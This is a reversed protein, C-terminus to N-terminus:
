LNQSFNKPKKSFFPTFPCFTICFKIQALFACNQTWIEAKHLKIVTSSSTFSNLAPQVSQPFVQGEFHWHSGWRSQHCPKTRFLNIIIKYKNLKKYKNSSNTTNTQRKLSVPSAVCSRKWTEAFFTVVLQGILSKRNKM